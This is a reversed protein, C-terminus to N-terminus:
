CFIHYWGSFYISTALHHISFSLNISLPIFVITPLYISLHIFLFSPHINSYFPLYTSLSVYLYLVIHSKSVPPVTTRSLVMQQTLSRREWEGRERREEGWVVPWVKSEWHWSNSIEGERGSLFGSQGAREKPHVCATERERMRRWVWVSFHSHRSHRGIEGGGLQLHRRSVSSLPANADRDTKHRSDQGWDVSTVPCGCNWPASYSHESQFSTRKKFTLWLYHNRWYSYGEM